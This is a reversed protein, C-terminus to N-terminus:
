SSDYGLSTRVGKNARTSRRVPSGDKQKADEGIKVQEEIKKVAAAVKGGVNPAPKRVPKMGEEVDVVDDNDFYENDGKAAKKAKEVLGAVSTTSKRTVNRSKPKTVGTMSGKEAKATKAKQGRKAVKIPANENPVSPPVPQSAPVSHPELSSEPPAVYVGGDFARPTFTGSTDRM